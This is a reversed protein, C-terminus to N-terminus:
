YSWPLQLHLGGGGLCNDSWVRPTNTKETSELPPTSPVSLKNLHSRNIHWCWQTLCQFDFRTIATLDTISDLLKWTFYICTHLGKSSSQKNRSQEQYFSRHKWKLCTGQGLDCVGFPGFGHILIMAFVSILKSQHAASFTLFCHLQVEPFRLCYPKCSHMLFYFLQM